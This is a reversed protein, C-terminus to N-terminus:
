KDNRAKDMNDWVEELWSDMEEQTMESVPKPPKAIFVKGQKGMSVAKRKATAQVGQTSKLWTLSIGSPKNTTRNVSDYQKM